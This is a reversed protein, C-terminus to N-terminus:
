AAVPTAPAPAPAPAPAVATALTAVATDIKAALAVLNQADPNVTGAATAAALSQALAGLQVNLSTVETQFAGVATMVNTQYADFKASATDFQASMKDEREGLENIAKKHVEVTQLLGHVQQVLWAINEDTYQSGM